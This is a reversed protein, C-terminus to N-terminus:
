FKVPLFGWRKTLLTQEARGGYSSYSAIREWFFKEPYTEVARAYRLQILTIQSYAKGRVDEWTLQVQAKCNFAGSKYQERNPNVSPAISLRWPTPKDLRGLRNTGQGDKRLEQNLDIDRGSGDSLLLNLELNLASVESNNYVAIPVTVVNDQRPPIIRSGAGVYALQWGVDVSLRPIKAQEDCYWHYGLTLLAVLLTLLAFLGSCTLWNRWGGKGNQAPKKKSPKKPM